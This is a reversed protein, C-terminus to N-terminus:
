LASEEGKEARAIECTLEDRVVRAQELAAVLVAGPTLCARIAESEGDAGDGSDSWEIKHLAEAVLKLHKRLARREPTTERFSANLLKYSLYDM